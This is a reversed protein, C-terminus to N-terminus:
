ETPQRENQQYNGKSHLFELKSYGWKNLKRKARAWPSIALFINGLATDSLKSDMNDELLKITEPREKLREDIKLKNKYITYSFTGIENKKMHRDLKGLVM